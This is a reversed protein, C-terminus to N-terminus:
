WPWWRSRGLGQTLVKEAEQFRGQETLKSITDLAGRGLQRDVARRLPEMEGRFYARALAQDGVGAELMQVIRGEAPYARPLDRIALDGSIRSALHETAGEDLRSGLTGRFRPDGLQHLREHAVTRSLVAGIVPCRSLTVPATTVLFEVDM